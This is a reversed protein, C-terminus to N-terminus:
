VMSTQLMDTKLQLAHLEAQIIDIAAKQQEELAVWKDETALTVADAIQKLDGDILTVM